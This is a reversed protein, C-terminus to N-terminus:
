NETIIRSFVPNYREIDIEEDAIDKVEELTLKFCLAIQNFTLGTNDILWDAVQMFFQKNRDNNDKSFETSM